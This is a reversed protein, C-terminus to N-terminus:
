ARRSVLALAIAVGAMDILVDVPSGHRGHVFPQPSEDCIAFLLTIALAAGTRGLARWWLLWLGGYTAAHILKRGITDWAGLGSNLDPQASFFFILAMLVLPPGYRRMRPISAPAQGLIRVTSDIVLLDGYARRASASSARAPPSPGTGIPSSARRRPM